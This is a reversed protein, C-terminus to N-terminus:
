VGILKAAQPLEPLPAGEPFASVVLSLDQANGNHLVIQDIRARLNWLAAGQRRSVDLALLIAAEAEGYHNDKRCIAAHMRLVEAYWIHLGSKRAEDAAAGSIRYAERLRGKKALCSAYCAAFYPGAVNSGLARLQDLSAKFALLDEETEVQGPEMIFRWTRGTLQWFIAGQQDALALGRYLRDLAGERHGAYFLPVAGWVLAYPLMVPMKLATQHRDTEAVLETVRDVEGCIIRAPTEFMQAAAFVDMGYRAIMPAHKEIRYLKRIQAMQRLQATLDGQYFYACNRVTLAALKTEVDDPLSSSLDSLLDCFGDARRKDGAIIAHSFSGFLAAASSKSRTPSSRAIQHVAEFEARVPEAMFGQVQMLISGLATHAAIRFDSPDTDTALVDCLSLAARAHAEADGLAGQMLASHSARLYGELAPIIQGAKMQHDALLSPDRASLDPFQTTLVEAIREHLTERTKRLMSHYAAQVLLAHEFAWDGGRQRTLVGLNACRKLEPVPDHGHPDLAALMDQNFTRGLAAARQLVPKAAGTEDIREALLDMLTEPIRNDSVARNRRRYLQELFLPIGGAREVLGRAVDDSLTDDSLIKLMHKASGDSLPDLALIRTMKDLGHQELKPDERSTLLVQINGPNRSSLIHQIAQLSAIDFWHLDEFVLLGSPLVSRIANWLATEIRAKLALSPLENLLCLGEPLGMTLALSRHDQDSLGPFTRQIDKMDPSELGLQRFMWTKFPRYSTNSHIGDANFVARTEASRAIDATLATKGIGAPGVILVPRESTRVIECERDRGILPTEGPLVEEPLTFHPQFLTQPEAFGKLQCNPQESLKFKGRLLRRTIESVLVTGPEAHNQVRQALTTVIGTIRPWTNHDADGRVAVEGTAVGARLQVELMGTYRLRAVATMAAHVARPAALEDARSLGFVAVIGDGLYETVEGGNAEIIDRASQYYEELWSQLDEADLESAIESFGVLDLFVATVQKREGEPSIGFRPM